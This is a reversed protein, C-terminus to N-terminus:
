IKIYDAKWLLFAVNLREVEAVWHVTKAFGLKKMEDSCVAKSDLLIDAAQAEFLDYESLSAGEHTRFRNNNCAVLRYKGELLLKQVKYEFFAAQTVVVDANFNEFSRM